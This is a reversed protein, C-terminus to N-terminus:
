ISSYYQNTKDADFSASDVGAVITAEAQLYPLVIAPSTSDGDSSGNSTSDTGLSSSASVRAAAAYATPVAQCVYTRHRPASSPFHAASPCYTTGLILIVWNHPCLHPNVACGGFFPAAIM